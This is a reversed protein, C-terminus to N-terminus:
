EIFNRIQEEICNPEENSFKIGCYTDNPIAYKWILIIDRSPEYKFCGCNSCIYNVPSSSKVVWNHELKM